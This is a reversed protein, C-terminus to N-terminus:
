EFHEPKANTLTLTASEEYEKSDMDYALVKVSVDAIEDEAETVSLKWDRSEM